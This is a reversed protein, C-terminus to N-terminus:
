ANWTAEFIKWWTGEKEYTRFSGFRPDAMIFLDTYDKASRQKANMLIMMMVDLGLIEKMEYNTVEGWKPLLRGCVLIKAGPKLAPILQRLIRVAYKDSWNHLILSLIYADADKTPQEDFFDHRMFRIRNEQGPPAIAETFVAYDQVIFNLQEHKSAIAISVHGNGGGVDVITGAVGPDTPIFMSWPYMDVLNHASSEGQEVSIGTIASNFQRLREPQTKLYQYFPLDTDNALNWATQNPEESLPWTEVSDILKMFAPQYEDKGVGVVASLGPSNRLARSDATHAIFGSRPEYFIHNTM